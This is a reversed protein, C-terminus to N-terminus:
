CPKPPGATRNPDSTLLSRQSPPQRRLRAHDTPLLDVDYARIAALRRADAVGIARAPRPLAASTPLGVYWLGIIGVVPTAAHTFREESAGM